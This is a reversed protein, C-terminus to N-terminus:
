RKSRGNSYVEKQIRKDNLVTEISLEGTLFLLTAAAVVREKQSKALNVRSELLNNEMAWVDTNSKMGLETEEMNGESSLEASKVASRSAKIMAIASKYKNWYIICEKKISLIVNEAEFRAKLAQQNAINIQSYTNSGNGNTFIPVTVSISASYRKPDTEVRRRAGLIKEKALNKGASFTADCSPSLRGRVASLNKLAAQEQLKTMNISHNSAMAKKVLKEYSEPLEFQFNPLGMDNDARKGTLQEFEGEAAMLETEADIMSYIASQHKSEAEAVKIPTSMGVELGSQQAQLANNLNKEMKKFADLRKRCFWVNTYAKVVNLILNEKKAELKHFAASNAYEKAKMTNVTSFGNFINQNVTIGMNTSTTETNVTMVGYENDVRERNASINGSINPLFALKAQRLEEGAITKETKDVEWEKNNWFAAVLAEELTIAKISFATSTFFVALYFIKKM